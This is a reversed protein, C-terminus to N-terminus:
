RARNEVASNADGFLSVAAEPYEIRGAGLAVLAAKKDDKHFNKDSTVFVDRGSYIHSWVAQVDCKCNRWKRDPLEPPPNIAMDRWHDQWLFQVSPFLISHIKRELALMSGDTLLCHDLFSIDFYAMPLVINLHNLGLATLRSQFGSFNRLRYGGQQNESASMAVVAVDALGETHSDALTRVAAAASRGEDIAILCNTDLTFRRLM